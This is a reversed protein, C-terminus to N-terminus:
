GMSELQEQTKQVNDFMTESSTLPYRGGSAAPDLCVVCGACAPATVRPWPGPARPPPPRHGALPATDGATARRRGVVIKTRPAVVRASGTRRPSDRGDRQDDDAAPTRVELLPSSVDSLLVRGSVILFSACGLVNRM